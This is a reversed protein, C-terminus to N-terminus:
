EDRPDVSFSFRSLFIASLSSLFFVCLCFSWFSCVFSSLFIEVSCCFFLVFSVQFRRCQDVDLQNLIESVPRPPGNLQLIESLPREDIGTCVVERFLSERVEPPLQRSVNLLERKLDVLHQLLEREQAKIKNDTAIAKKRELAAIERRHRLEREQKLSQVAEEALDRFAKTLLCSPEVDNGAVDEHGSAEAAQGNMPSEYTIALIPGSGGELPQIAESTSPLVSADILPSDVGVVVGNPEEAAKVLQETLATFFEKIVASKAQRSAQVEAFLPDESSEQEVNLSVPTLATNGSTHFIVGAVIPRAAHTIMQRCDELSLHRALAGLRIRLGHLDALIQQEEREAQTATVSVRRADDLVTRVEQLDICRQRADALLQLFQDRNRQVRPDAM